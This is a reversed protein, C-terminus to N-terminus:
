AGLREVQEIRQLLDAESEATITVHGLKRGPKPDKGYLHLHTGPLSQILDPNPVRGILNVMAVFDHRLKVSGLPMGLGARLHNEFQSTKAGEITWHGTNHVRTAIENVLLRGEHVFLELTMVGVYPHTPSFEELAKRALVEAATQLSSYPNPVVTTRLIGERHVNKSIPYFTVSGDRARACVISVEAEFPVWGELVCPVHGVEAFARELDSPSNVARLVVQGKGDYGFRRTKLICPLGLKAVAHRLDEVSDVAAFPATPIGIAALRIKQDLRDQAIRLAEPDPFVGLGSQKLLELIGVPVNEWEYTVDSLEAVFDAPVSGEKFPHVCVEAERSAPGGAASDWVRVERELDHAAIALMWGLQGGGVIGIKGPSRATM